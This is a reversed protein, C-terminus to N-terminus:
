GAGYDSGRGLRGAQQVMHLKKGMCFRNPMGFIPRNRVLHSRANYGEHLFHKNCALGVPDEDLSLAQNLPSTIHYSIINGEKCRPIGHLTTNLSLRAM